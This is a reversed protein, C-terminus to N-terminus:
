EYIRWFFLTFLRGFFCMKFLIYKHCFYEILLFFTFLYEVACFHFNKLLKPGNKRKQLVFFGPKGPNRALHAVNATTALRLRSRRGELGKDPLVLANANAFLLFFSNQALLLRLTCARLFGKDPLVLANANAFLLFSRTKRLCFDCRAHVCFD